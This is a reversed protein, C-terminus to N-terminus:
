IQLIQFGPNGEEEKWKSGKRGRQKPTLALFANQLGERVDQNDNSCLHMDRGKWQAIDKYSKLTHFIFVLVIKWLVVVARQQFEYSTTGIYFWKKSM